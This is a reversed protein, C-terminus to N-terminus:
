GKQNDNDKVGGLEFKLAEYTTENILDQKYKKHIDSMLSHGEKEVCDRLFLGIDNVNPNALHELARKRISDTFVLYEKIAVLGGGSKKILRQHIILRMADILKASMAKREEAPFEDVMRSITMAVSNTHVTSYVLHGTQSATVCGAITEKDRAEGILIIHPKRRLANAVGSPFDEIHDPIQTQAIRAKKNKIAKLDFEIPAEYTIIHKAEKVAIDGLLAANLTSKGSGTPGTILVLGFEAKSADIITQEVNLMECTPPITPITRFVAEIGSKEGTVCVRYRVAQDANIDDERQVMYPFDRAKGKKIVAEIAPLDIDKLFDILEHHAISRNGVIVVEDNLIIALKEGSHILIDSAGCDSAWMLFEDFEENSM